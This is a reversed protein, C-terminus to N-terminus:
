PKFLVWDTATCDELNHSFELKNPTDDLIFIQGWKRAVLRIRPNTWDTRAVQKGKNLQKLAWRWDRGSKSRVIRIGDPFENPNFDRRSELAAELTPYGTSTLKSGTWGDIEANYYLGTEMDKLYYSIKTM